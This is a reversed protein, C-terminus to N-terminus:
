KIEMTLEENIENVTRYCNYEISLGYENKITIKQPKGFVLGIDTELEYLVYRKGLIEPYCFWKYGVGLFFYEGKIDTVLETARLISLPNTDDDSVWDMIDDTYEGYYIRYQYQIIYDKQFTLGTTDYALIKFNIVGARNRTIENLPITVPSINDLKEILLQGDLEIFITKEELLEPNIINFKFLYDGTPITHGIEFRGGINFNNLNTIFFQDFEPFDFGYFLKTFITRLDANKFRTGAKVSGVNFPVPKSNTYFPNSSGSGYINTIGVKGAYIKKEDTYIVLEGTPDIKADKIGNGKDGKISQGDRGAPGCEGRPGRIPEPLKINNVLSIILQELQAYSSLMKQQVYVEVDALVQAKIAEEDADKGDQGDIGDRPEPILAIQAKIIDLIAIKLEEEKKILAEDVKSTAELVYTNLKDLLLLKIRETIAEEDADRGDRGDQGDIGDKIKFNLVLAELKKELRSLIAEEDAPKGDARDKIEPLSQKIEKLGKQLEEALQGNLQKSLEAIIKEEDADKGDKVEITSIARDILAIVKTELEELLLQIENKDNKAINFYKAAINKIEGDLHATLELGLEEKSKKLEKSQKKLTKSLFTRNEKLDCNIQKKIEQIEKSNDITTIIEKKILPLEIKQKCGDSYDIKFVQEDCSIASVYKTDKIKKALKVIGQALLQSEVQM